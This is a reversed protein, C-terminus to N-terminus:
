VNPSKGESSLLLVDDTSFAQGGIAWDGSKIEELIVTTIGRRDEGGIALVTSTIDEILHKKQKSSYVGEIFKVTILAM